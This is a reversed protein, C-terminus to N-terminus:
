FKLLGLWWNHTIIKGKLYVDPRPIVRQPIVQCFASIGLWGYFVGYSLHAGHVM